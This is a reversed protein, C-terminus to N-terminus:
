FYKSLTLLEKEGSSKVLQKENVELGKIQKEGQDKITKIQKEFAKGLPSYTLKAQEMVRKKDSSLIKEAILYIYKDINSSLM